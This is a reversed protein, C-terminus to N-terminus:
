ENKIEQTAQIQMRSEKPKEIWNKWGGELVFVRTFGIRMLQEASLPALDKGTRDYLIIEDDLRIHPFKSYIDFELIGRPINVSNPINGLRFADPERVDVLILEHSGLKNKLAQKTILSSKQRANLLLDDISKFVEQQRIRNVNTKHSKSVKAGSKTKEGPKTQLKRGVEDNKACSFLLLIIFLTLINNIITKM